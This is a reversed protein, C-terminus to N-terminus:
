RVKEQIGTLGEGFTRFDGRLEELIASFERDKSFEPGPQPAKNKPMSPIKGFSYQRTM